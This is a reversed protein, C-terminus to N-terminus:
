TRSGYHTVERSRRLSYMPAVIRQDPADCALADRMSGGGMGIIEGTTVACTAAVRCTSPADAIKTAIV